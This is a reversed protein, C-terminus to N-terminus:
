SEDMYVKDELINDDKDDDNEDMESEDEQTLDESLEDMAKIWEYEKGERNQKISYLIEDASVLLTHFQKKRLNITEEYYNHEKELMNIQKNLIDMHKQIQSRSPYKNINRAMEDYELKNKREEKSQDLQKKLEEIEIKGEEIRKEINKIKLKYENVEKNNMEFIQKSRHLNIELTELMILLSELSTNWEERSATKYQGILTNYKKIIRKLPREEIALRNRINQDEDM